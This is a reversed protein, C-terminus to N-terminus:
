KEKQILNHNKLLSYPMTEPGLVVTTKTKMTEKLADLNRLFIAFELDKEFVTYYSSAEIVAQGQIELAKAHAQAITQAKAQDATTRTIKAEKEGESRIKEAISQQEQIMREFIAKTNNEPLLIQSFGYYKIKIGYQDKARVKLENLILQEIEAIGQKSIEAQTQHREFFKELNQNQVIRTQESEVLTRLQLEAETNNGINKYFTLTDDISWLVFSNVLISYKNKTTTERPKSTLLQQRKDFYVVQQIPWPFRLYPGAKVIEKPKGFTTIIASQNIRVQYTCMTVLILIAIVGATIIPLKPKPSNTM